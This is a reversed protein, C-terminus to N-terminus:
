SEMEALGCLFPKALVVRSKWIKKEDELTRMGAERRRSQQLYTKLNKNFEEMEKWNDPDPIMNKEEIQETFERFIRSLNPNDRPHFYFLSYEKWKDMVLRRINTRREESNKKGSSISQEHNINVYETIVIIRLMATLNILHYMYLNVYLIAMPAKQLCALYEGAIESLQGAIARKETRDECAQFKEYLAEIQEEMNRLTGQSKIAKIEGIIRKLFEELFIEYYQLVFALEVYSNEKLEQKEEDEEYTGDSDCPTPNKLKLYSDLRREIEKELFELWLYPILTGNPNELDKFNLDEQGDSILKWVSSCLYAELNKEPDAFSLVTDSDCGRLMDEFDNLFRERRIRPSPNPSVVLSSVRMYELFKLLGTNRREEREEKSVIYYERVIDTLFEVARRREEWKTTKGAM